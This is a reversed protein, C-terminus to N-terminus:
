RQSCALISSVNSPRVSAAITDPTDGARVTHHNYKFVMRRIADDEDSNDDGSSSDYLGDHM